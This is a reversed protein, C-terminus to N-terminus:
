VGRMQLSPGAPAYPLKSLSLDRTRPRRYAQQHHIPCHQALSLLQMINEAVSQANLRTKFNTSLRLMPRYRCDSGSRSCSSTCSLLPVNSSRFTSSLQSTTLSWSTLLPGLLPGCAAAAPLCCHAPCARDQLCSSSCQMCRMVCCWM